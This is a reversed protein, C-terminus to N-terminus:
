KICNFTVTTQMMKAAMGSLSTIGSTVYNTHVFVKDLKIKIIVMSKFFNEEGHLIHKYSYIQRKDNFTTIIILKNVYYRIVLSCPFMWLVDANLITQKTNM